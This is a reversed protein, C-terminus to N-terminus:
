YGEGIIEGDKKANKLPPEVGTVGDVDPLTLHELILLFSIRYMFLRDRWITTVSIPISFLVFFGVKKKVILFCIRVVSIFIERQSLHQSM